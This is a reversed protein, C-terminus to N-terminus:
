APLKRALRGVLAVTEAPDHPMLARAHGTAPAQFLGSFAALRAFADETGTPMPLGEAGKRVGEVIACFAWLPPLPCYALATTHGVRYSWRGIVGASALGSLASRVTNEALGMPALAWGGDGDPVGGQLHEVPVREALKDFDLTRTFLAWWVMGHGMSAGTTALAAGLHRRALKAVKNGLSFRPGSGVVSGGLTNLVRCEYPLLMGAQGRPSVDPSVGKPLGELTEVLEWLDHALKDADGARALAPDRKSM